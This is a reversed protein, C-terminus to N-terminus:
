RYFIRCSKADKKGGGKPGEDCIGPGTHMSNLCTEPQLDDSVDPTYGEDRLLGRYFHM